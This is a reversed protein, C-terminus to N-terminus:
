AELGSDELVAKAPAEIREFLPAAAEYYADRTIKVNRLDVDAYVGEINVVTEKNANLIKKAKRAARRLRAMVKPNTRPDTLGEAKVAPNAKVAEVLIDIIVEDFSIGGLTEDWAQALVEVQGLTKNKKGM